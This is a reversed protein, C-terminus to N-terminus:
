AIRWLNGPAKEEWFRRIKEKEELKKLYELQKQLEKINMKKLQKRSPNDYPVFDRALSLYINEIAM